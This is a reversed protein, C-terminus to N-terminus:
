QRVQRVEISIFLLICLPPHDLYPLPSNAELGRRGLCHSLPLSYPCKRSRVCSPSGLFARARPAFTRDNWVM